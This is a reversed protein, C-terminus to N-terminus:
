SGPIVVAWANCGSSGHFGGLDFRSWKGGASAIVDLNATTTGTASVQQGVLALQLSALKGDEGKDGSVFTTQGVLGSEVNANVGSLPCGIWAQVGNWTGFLLIQGFPVQAVGFSLAGGTCTAQGSPAIDSIAQGSGCPTGTVRAQVASLDASVTGSSTIPNPSLLIGPGESLSGASGATSQCVVSGDANVARIARGTPCSGGIRRQFPNLLLPNVALVGGSLTLGSGVSRRTLASAPLTGRAIDSGPLSGPKVLRGTISHPRIAPGASAPQALPVIQLGIPQQGAGCDAAVRIVGDSRICAHVLRSAGLASGCLAVWLAAACALAARRRRM